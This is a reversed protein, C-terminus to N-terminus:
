NSVAAALRRRPEGPVRRIADWDEATIVVPQHADDRPAIVVFERGGLQAHGQLHYTTDWMLQPAEMGALDTLFQRATAQCDIDGHVM